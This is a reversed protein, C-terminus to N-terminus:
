EITVNVNDIRHSAAGTIVILGPSGTTFTADTATLRSVGNQFLEINAGNAVCELRFVSNQPPNPVSTAALVTEVGGAVRVIRLAGASSIRRYCAYYNQSDQLRVLAGLRPAAENRTSSFDAAVAQDDSAMGPLIALHTGNTAANRLEAGLISFDGQAEAWGNGLITSDARAFDDSFDTPVGGGSAVTVTLTDSDSAQGDDVTLTVTYTGPAAYAHTVVSGVGTNGDGFNWSYTLPGTNDPDSSGTGDFTLVEDPDGAQNPGAV